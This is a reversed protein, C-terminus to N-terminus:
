QLISDIKQQSTTDDATIVVSNYEVYAASLFNLIRDMRNLGSTNINTVIGSYEDKIVDGARKSLIEINNEVLIHRSYGLFALGIENDLFGAAKEAANVLSKGDLMDMGKLLYNKISGPLNEGFSHIGIDDMDKVIKELQRWTCQLYYDINIGYESEMDMLCQMAGAKQFREGIKEGSIEFSPSIAAIGVRNEIASFKFLFFYPYQSDICLLITKSDEGGAMGMPVGEKPTDTETSRNALALGMCGMVMLMVVMSVLFSYFFTKTSKM